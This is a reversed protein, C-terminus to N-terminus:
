ADLLGSRRKEIGRYRAKGGKVRMLSYLGMMVVDYQTIPDRHSSSCLTLPSEHRWLTPLPRGLRSLTRTALFYGLYYHFVVM